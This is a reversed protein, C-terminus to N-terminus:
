RIRLTVVLSALAVAAEARAAFAVGPEGAASTVGATLEGREGRGSGEGAILAGSTEGLLALSTGRIWKWSAVGSCVWAWGEIAEVLSTALGGPEGVGEATTRRLPAGGAEGAREEMMTGWTPSAAM